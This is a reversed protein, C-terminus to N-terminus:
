VQLFDDESHGLTLGSLWIKKSINPQRITNKGGINLWGCIERGIVALM